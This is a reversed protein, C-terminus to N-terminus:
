DPQLTLILVGETVTDGIELHLASVVGSCPAPIDLNTKDTELSIMPEDCRLRDGPNVLIDSVLLEGDRCAGCSDWCEPLAPLRVEIAGSM